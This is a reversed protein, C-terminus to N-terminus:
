RTPNNVSKDKSNGARIKNGHYETKAQAISKKVVTNTPNKIMFDKIQDFLSDINDSSQILNQSKM